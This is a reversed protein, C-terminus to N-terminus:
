GALDGAESAVRDGARVFVASLVETTRSLSMEHLGWFRWGVGCQGDRHIQSVADTAALEAVKDGEIDGQWAPQCRKGGGLGTGGNEGGGAVGCRTTGKGAGQVVSM